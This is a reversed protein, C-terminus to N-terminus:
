FAQHSNNTSSKFPLHGRALTVKGLGHASMGVVRRVSGSSKVLALPAVPALFEAGGQGGRGYAFWGFRALVVRVIEEERVRGGVRSRGGQSRGGQSREGEGLTGERAEFM